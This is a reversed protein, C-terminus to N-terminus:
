AQLTWKREVLTSLEALALLAPIDDADWVRQGNEDRQM